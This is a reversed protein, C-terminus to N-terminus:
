KNFGLGAYASADNITNIVKVERENGSEEPVVPGSPLNKLFSAETAKFETVLTTADMVSVDVEALDLATRMGMLTGAVVEKLSTITAELPEALAVAEALKAEAELTKEAVEKKHEEFETALATFKEEFNIEEGEKLETKGEPELNGKAEPQEAPVKEPAVGPDVEPKKGAYMAELAEKSLVKKKM